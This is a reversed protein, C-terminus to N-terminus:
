GFGGAVPRSINAHRSLLLVVGSLPLTVIRLM